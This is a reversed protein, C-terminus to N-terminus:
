WSSYLFHIACNINKMCILFFNSLHFVKTKTNKKFQLIITKYHQTPKQQVFVHILWLYIYIGEKELRGGMSGMEGRLATGLVDFCKSYFSIM